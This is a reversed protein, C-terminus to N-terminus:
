LLFVTALGLLLGMSVIDTATTLFISSATAPDAGLRRLAIPVMAGSIGSCMCSGVMAVFVIGALALPNSEDGATIYMALGALAGVVVGNLIGLAAEKAVVTIPSREALEGLTMGRLTVALAQCGTNGSQGALIPLFAALTVIRDITAEFVGVVAGAAFATLLNLLLWPNRLRLARPWPTSLREEKEVGVMSGAQVVLQFVRQQFLDEGRVLGVLRGEEDCVPYVPYHRQVAEHMAEAVAMNASLSFPERIMIDALTLSPDALLMERMVVVGLLRRDADTVHIYTIFATKVQERLEVVADRITTHPPFVGVPEAMLRGVTNDPYSANVEWQRRRSEPVRALIADRRRDRFKGLIRLAHPPMMRTLMEAVVSDPEDALQAYATQASGRAIEREIERLRVPDTPSEATRASEATLPSDAAM